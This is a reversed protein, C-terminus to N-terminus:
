SSLRLYRIGWSLRLALAEVPNKAKVKASTDSAIPANNMTNMNETM